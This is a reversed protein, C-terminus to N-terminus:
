QNEIWTCDKLIKNTFCLWWLNASNRMLIYDQGSEWCLTFNLFRRNLFNHNFMLNCPMEKPLFHKLNIILAMKQKTELMGNFIRYLTSYRAHDMMIMPQALLQRTVLLHLFIVLYIMLSYISYFVIMYLFATMVM